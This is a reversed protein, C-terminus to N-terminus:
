HRRPGDSVEGKKNEAERKARGLTANLMGFMRKGRGAADDTTKRVRKSRPQEVEAPPSTSLRDETQQQGQMDDQERKRLPPQPVSESPGADGPHNGGAAHEVAGSQSSGSM